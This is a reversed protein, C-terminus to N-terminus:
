RATIMGVAMGCLRRSSTMDLSQGATCANLTKKPLSEESLLATLATASGRDESYTSGVRPGGVLIVNTTLIQHSALRRKRPVEGAHYPRLRGPTESSEAFGMAESM